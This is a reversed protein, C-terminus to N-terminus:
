KEEATGNPRRADGDDILMTITIDLRDSAPTAWLLM